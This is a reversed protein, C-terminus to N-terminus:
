SAGRPDQMSSSNCHQREQQDLTRKLWRVFEQSDNPQLQARYLAASRQNEQLQRIGALVEPFQRAIQGSNSFVLNGPDLRQLETAREVRKSCRCPNSSAVLGCHRLMFTTITSRARSLRKRYTGASVRLVKAAEQHEVELIEGLIYALRAKKELCHLLALTCGIRVEELLLATDPGDYPSNSLGQALDTSMGDLTITSLSPKRKLDLLHNSAVAYAWTKFQSRGDFRSLRTIIKLLIEQTVDEADAPNMLFRQALMYIDPQIALILADLAVREGNRSRAVLLELDDTAM